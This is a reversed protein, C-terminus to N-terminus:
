GCQWVEALLEYFRVREADGHTITTILRAPTDPTTAGSVGAWSTRAAGSPLALDDGM